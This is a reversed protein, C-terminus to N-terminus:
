ASISARASAGGAGAVLDEFYLVASLPLEPAFASSGM